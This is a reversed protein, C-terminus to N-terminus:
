YWGGGGFKYPRPSTLYVQLTVLHSAPYLKVLNYCKRQGAFRNWNITGSLIGRGELFDWASFRSRFDDALTAATGLAVASSVTGLLGVWIGDVSPNFLSSASSVTSFIWSSGPSTMSSRKFTGVSSCTSCDHVNKKYNWSFLHLHRNVGRQGDPTLMRPTTPWFSGWLSPPLARGTNLHLPHLLPLRHFLPSLPWALLKLDRAELSCTQPSPEVGVDSRRWVPARKQTQFSESWWCRDWRTYKMYM